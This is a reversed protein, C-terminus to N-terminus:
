DSSPGSFLCCVCIYDLDVSVDEERKLSEHARGLVRVFCVFDPLAPISEDTTRHKTNLPHKAEHLDTHAAAASVNESILVVDSWLCLKLRSKSHTFNSHSPSTQVQQRPTLSVNRGTFSM